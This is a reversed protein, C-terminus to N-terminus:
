LETVQVMVQKVEMVHNKSRSNLLDCVAQAEAASAYVTTHISEHDTAKNTIKVAWRLWYGKVKQTAM